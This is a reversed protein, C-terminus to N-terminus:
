RNLTSCRSASTVTESRMAYESDHWSGKLEISITDM